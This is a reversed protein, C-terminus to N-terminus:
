HKIFLDFLLQNIFHFICILQESIVLYLVASNLSVMGLMFSLLYSYYLGM